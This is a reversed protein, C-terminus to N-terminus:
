HHIVARLDVLRDDTPGGAMLHFPPSKNLLPEALDAIGPGGPACGSCSRCTERHAPARVLPQRRGREPGREQDIVIHREGDPMLEPPRPRRATGAAGIGRAAAVPYHQEVPEDRVHEPPLEAAAGGPLDPGEARHSSQGEIFGATPLVQALVPEG